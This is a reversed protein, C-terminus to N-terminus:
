LPLTMLVADEAPASYYNKRVGDIRFGASTYLARAAANSERVELRLWDCGRLKAQRATEELLARGVGSRRYPEAVALDNLFAEDPVCRTHAYGLVKEGERATLFLVDPDEAMRRLLPEDAGLSFMEREMGAVAAIERPRIEGIEM